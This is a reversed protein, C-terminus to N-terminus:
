ALQKAELAAVIYAVGCFLLDIGIFLGIIYFGSEPWQSMILIGLLFTLLGNFLNWQWRPTRITISFMIRFAGLVIYLIGLIFTLSISSVLPSRILMVGIAIYIFAMLLHLVFGSWKRWWFTLTDILIVIGSALIVAGLILVSVITAMTTEYLAYIGLASLLVGWLFFWGWHNSFAALDKGGIRLSRRM